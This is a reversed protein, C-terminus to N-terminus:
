ASAMALLFRAHQRDVESAERDARAVTHEIEAAASPTVGELQQAAAGM